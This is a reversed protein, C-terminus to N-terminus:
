GINFTTNAPPYQTQLHKLTDAALSQSLEASVPTTFLDNKLLACGSLSSLMFFTVYLRNM